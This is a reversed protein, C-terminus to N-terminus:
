QAKEENNLQLNSHFSLSIICDSPVICVPYIILCVCLKQKSSDSSRGVKM